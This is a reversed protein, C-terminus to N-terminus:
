EARVKVAFGYAKLKAAIEPEYGDKPVLEVARFLDRKAQVSDGLAEYSLARQYLAYGYDPQKPIGLTMADVAEQYRGALHLTQAMHYYVAMGPGTGPGDEDFDRARRLAVLAEDFRGDERLYAGLTIYPWANAAPVRQIVERQDAAALGWQKLERYAVSRVEYVAAEVQPPLNASLCETLPPIAETFREAQFHNVGRQCAIPQAMAAGTATTLTLVFALHKM